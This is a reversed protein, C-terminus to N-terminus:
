GGVCQVNAVFGYGAANFFTSVTETQGPLVRSEVPTPNSSSTVTCRVPARCQSHIDVLHNYGSGNFRAYQTVSVCDPRTGAVRAAPGADQAVLPSGTLLLSM